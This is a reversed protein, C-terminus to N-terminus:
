HLNETIEASKDMYNLKYNAIYFLGEEPEEIIVKENVHLLVKKFAHSFNM